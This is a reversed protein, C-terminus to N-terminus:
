MPNEIDDPYPTAAMSDEENNIQNFKAENKIRKILNELFEVEKTKKSNPKNTKKDLPGQSENADNAMIETYEKLKNFGMMSSDDMVSM